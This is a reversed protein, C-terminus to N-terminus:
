KSQKVYEIANKFLESGLQGIVSGGPYLESKVAAEPHPMLGFILGTPDCVGAIDDHAGNPNRKYSLAVQKRAKFEDCLKALEANRRNLIFRGEGHRIPLKMSQIGKTWICPSDEVKLEEWQDIFQGSVNQALGLYRSDFGSFAGLKTLVQFGNCIGIVPKKAAVFSKFEDSM